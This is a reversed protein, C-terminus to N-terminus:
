VPTARRRWAWILPALGGIAGIVTAPPGMVDLGTAAVTAALMIIGASVVFRRAQWQQRWLLIGGAVALIGAPTALLGASFQPTGPGFYVFEMAGGYGTLAGAVMMTVAVLKM